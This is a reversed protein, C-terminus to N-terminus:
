GGTTGTAEDDVAQLSSNLKETMGKIEAWQEATPADGTVTNQKDIITKVDVALQDVKGQATALDAKIAELETSM